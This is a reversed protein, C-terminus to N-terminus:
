IEVAAKQLMDSPNQKSKKNGNKCQANTQWPGVAHYVPPFGLMSNDVPVPQVKVTGSYLQEAFPNQPKKEGNDRGTDIAKPDADFQFLPLCCMSM